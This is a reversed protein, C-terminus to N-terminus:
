TQIHSVGTSRSVWLAIQIHGVHKLKTKLLLAFHCTFNKIHLMNIAHTNTCLQYDYYTFEHMAKNAVLIKGSRLTM